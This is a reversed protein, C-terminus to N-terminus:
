KFNKDFNLENVISTKGNSELTYATMAEVTCSQIKVNKWNIDMSKKVTGDSYIVDGTQNNITNVLNFTTDGDKYSIAGSGPGTMMYKEGNTGICFGSLVVAIFEDQEFSLRMTGSVSMNHNPGDETITVKDLSLIEIDIKKNSENKMNNNNDNINENKTNNNNDNINENKTNNNDGNINENKTNNNNDNINENKTNNNNDNINENLKDDNAKNSNFSVTGTAFLFCLSSLIVIIVILLAIVEKNNKQNEM